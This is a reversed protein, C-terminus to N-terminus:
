ELNGAEEELKNIKELIEIRHEKDTKIQEYLGQIENEVDEKTRVKIPEPIPINNETIFNNVKEEVGNLKVATKFMNTIHEMLLDIYDAFAGSPISCMKEFEDMSITMDINSLVPIIRFLFEINNGESQEGLKNISEKDLNYFELEKGELTDGQKVFIDKIFKFKSEAKFLKINIRNEM